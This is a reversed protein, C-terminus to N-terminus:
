EAAEEQIEKVVTTINEKVNCQCSILMTSIDISDFSCGEECLTFNQYVNKIRDELILDNGDESYPYCVDNFFEDSINFINVGSEKFSNFISIDLGSNNKIGYFVKINSDNCLSLDLPNRQEDYVQYEVQNILSRENKNSIEMQFFTIISENSLNYYARLTLECEIFDIHTKNTLLKSDTPYILINLDDKQYEYTEGIDVNGMIENINELIKEKTINVILITLEKINVEKIPINYNYNTTNEIINFNENDKNNTTYSIKENIPTNTSPFDIFIETSHIMNDTNENFQFHFIEKEPTFFIKSEMDDLCLSQQNNMISLDADLEITEPKILSNVDIKSYFKELVSNSNCYNKLVSFLVIKENKDCYFVYNKVDNDFNEPRKIIIGFSDNRFFYLCSFFKLREKLFSPMILTNNKIYREYNPINESKFSFILKDNQHDKVVKFELLKKEENLFYCLFTFNINKIYCSIGRNFPNMLNNYYPFDSNNFSNNIINISYYKFILTSNNVFHSIICNTHEDNSDYLNLEYYYSDAYNSINFLLFYNNEGEIKYLSRNVLCLCATSSYSSCKMNRSFYLTSEVPLQKMQSYAKNLMDDIKVQCLINTHLLLIRFFIFKLIIKRIKESMINKKFNIELYKYNNIKKLKIPFM